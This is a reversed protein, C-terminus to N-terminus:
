DTTFANHAQTADGAPQPFDGARTLQVFGAIDQNGTVTVTGYWGDPMTFGPDALRHNHIVSAGAAIDVDAVVINTASGGGAIYDPSPVYTFTVIAPDAADLNQVTLGSSFGSGGLRKAILPVQLTEGEVGANIAEYAAANSTGVVRMQVFAVVNGTASVACSGYWLEPIDMNTVPNFFYAATDLVTTTNTMVFTSAGVLGADPTCDVQIDGAAMTGGSLNQVAIPTSLNNALRSTFLPVYWDAGVDNSSFANFTQLSHDGAFQNVVVAVTGDTATAEVVASGYFADPVNTDEEDSLDYYVSSGGPVDAFTKQYVTAGATDLFDVTVDTTGTGANQIVVVSNVLGDATTLERMVLPVYYLKSAASVGSYASSTAEQGIAQLQVVAGLPQTSSAVVAGSGDAMSGADAGYQRHIAQGGDAAITFSTFNAPVDAWAAGGEVLYSATVTAEESGFNLYTINTSLSKTTAAAMAMGTLVVLLSLIILIGLISKLKV